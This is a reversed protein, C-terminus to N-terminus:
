LDDCHRDQGRRLQSGHCLRNEDDKDKYGRAANCHTDKERKEITWDGVKTQALAPAAMFGALLAAVFLTRIMDGGLNNIAVRKDQAGDQM